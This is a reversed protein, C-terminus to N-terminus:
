RGPAAPQKMLDLLDMPRQLIAAAGEERLEAEPEYGWAVGIPMMGARQAAQIDMRSDGIFFCRSPEVGALLAIDLAGKPDPKLPVQSSEGRVAIFLEPAFLSRVVCDAVVGPKNTLIALKVGQRHLQSLMPVIGPFPVTFDVSHQSYYTKYAAKVEAAHKIHRPGLARSVLMDVGNGIFKNYDRQPYQPLGMQGMVHNLSAAIDPLSDILTGDLDFIVLDCAYPTSPM